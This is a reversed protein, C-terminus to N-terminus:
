DFHVINKQFWEKLKMAIHARQLDDAILKPSRHKDQFHIMFNQIINVTIAKSYKEDLDAVPFLAFGKRKNVENHFQYLMNKLDHKTKITSFNIKDMYEKAHSSCVPCPLNVCIAYINNLLEIRVIQFEDEKVKEALTHFLFWIPAGWIMKPKPEEPVVVPAQPPSPQVSVFRRRMFMNPISTNQPSVNTKAMQHKPINSSLNLFQMNM